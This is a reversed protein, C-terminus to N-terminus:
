WKPTKSFAPSTAPAGSIPSDGFPSTVLIGIQWIFWVIKKPIGAQRKDAERRGGESRTAESRGVGSLIEGFWGAVEGPSTFGEELVM